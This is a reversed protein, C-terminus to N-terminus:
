GRQADMQQIRNRWMFIGAGAMALGAAASWAIERRHRILKRYRWLPKRYKWAFKLKKITM